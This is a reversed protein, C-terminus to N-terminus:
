SKGRIRGFHWAIFLGLILAGSMASVFGPNFGVAVPHAALLALGVWVNLLGWVVNLWAPSDVKGNLRAFPTPFPEGQLGKALHPLCNCLFFGAFFAATLDM